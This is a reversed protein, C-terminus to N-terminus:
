VLAQFNNMPYYGFVNLYIQAYYYYNEKLFIHEFTTQFVTAMKQGSQESM